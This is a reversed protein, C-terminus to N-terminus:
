RGRRWRRRREGHESTAAAQLLRLREAELGDHRCIASAIEVRRWVPYVKVAGILVVGRDDVWIFRSEGARTGLHSDQCSDPM